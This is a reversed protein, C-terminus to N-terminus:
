WVNWRFKNENEITPKSYFILDDSSLYLNSKKNKLILVNYNNMPFEIDWQQSQDKKISTFCANDDLYRDDVVIKIKYHNNEQIIQVKGTPRQVAM